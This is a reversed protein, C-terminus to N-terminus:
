SPRCKYNGLRSGYSENTNSRPRSVLFSFGDPCALAVCRLTLGISPMKLMGPPRLV